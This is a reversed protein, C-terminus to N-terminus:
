GDATSGDASADVSPTGAEQALRETDLLDVLRQALVVDGAIRLRGSLFAVNPALSGDFLAILDDDALSLTVDPAEAPGPYTRVVGAEIVQHAPESLDYQVVAHLDGARDADIADALRELLQRATM